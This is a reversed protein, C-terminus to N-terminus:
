SHVYRKQFAQIFDLESDDGSGDFAMVSADLDDSGHDRPEPRLDLIPIMSPRGHACQFPFACKALRSVLTKCDDLSLPDNFMIAGRCARSNLLDFIGQPCGSMKQLWAHPTPDEGMAEVFLSRPDNPDNKNSLKGPGIPKRDGEEHTWIERRLIEIPLHPDLRCREAILAPLTDVSVTAESGSTDQVNYQIGWDKFFSSYKQFLGAETSSIKFTIPDIELTRVEAEHSSNSPVFMEDFLQEIRCREDAAHQDILVLVAEPYGATQVNEANLKVLIFKQDVQAIITAAALSQRQLKGKFMAVQTSALAGALAGSCHTITHSTRADLFNAEVDFRSLPMETRAFTPNDWERLLNEVWSNQNSTSKTKALIPLGSRQLGTPTPQVTQGTRANIMHKKGTRRDFWPIMRDIQSDDVELEGQSPQLQPQDAVIPQTCSINSPLITAHEDPISSDTKRAFFPSLRVRPADVTARGSSVHDGLGKATKLRSWNQLNQSTTAAHPRQFSPLKLSNTFSEEADVRLPRQRSSASESRSQGASMAEQARNLSRGRRTASRPRLKQQKLFETIMAELVEVIRQISKESNPFINDDADEDFPLAASTDIRVYFMPWRNVGKAWSKGSVSSPAESPGVIPSECTASTSRSTLGSLGFDSSSILRNIESFLINSGNRSLAPERGLSIFQLKKSPSPITSIAASIQLDPIKASIVHWSDMNRSRILGFQALIAGIRPLDVNGSPQSPFGLSPSDLRISFRKSKGIDSIVLKLLQSNALLLSVILHRLNDWERDLEEPKQFALARSKVRVPMNGFLDNVTVCTGHESYRLNQHVPAPILRAVPRSHHFIISNTTTYQIHRSTVTLLSLAALSYLFLGRHGYNGPKGFKSTHHAKGIGGTSEFETQRIGTGDDEVICGGRKFDVSIHVTKAGADLANKLLELIVGNLNTISTSSKIKAAVDSPLAQIAAKTSSM